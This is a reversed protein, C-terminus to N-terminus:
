HQHPYIHLMLYVPLLWGGIEGASDDGGTLVSQAVQFLVFVVFGYFLLSFLGGGGGGVPQGYGYGGYGYGFGISPGFFSSFGTSPRGIGAGSGLSPSMSCASLPM